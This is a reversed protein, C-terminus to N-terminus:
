YNSGKSYLLLFLDILEGKFGEELLLQKCVSDSFGPKYSRKSKLADVKDALRLLRALEFSHAQERTRARPYGPEHHSIILEQVLETKGLNRAVGMSARPHRRIEGKEFSNLSNPSKLIEGNIDLKGIDHLLGASVLQNAVELEIDLFKAALRLSRAVRVCHRFTDIDHIRLRQLCEGTRM